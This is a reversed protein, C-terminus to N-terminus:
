LGLEKRLEKLTVYDGRAIAERGEKIAKRESKTPKDIRELILDSAQTKIKKGLLQEYEKKPILVLKENKGVNKPIVITM